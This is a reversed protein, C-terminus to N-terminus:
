IAQQKITRPKREITGFAGFKLLYLMHCKTPTVVPYSPLKM